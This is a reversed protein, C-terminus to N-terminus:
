FSFSGGIGPNVHNPLIADPAGYIPKLNLTLKFSGGSFFEYAAEHNQLTFAPESQVGPRALIKESAVPALSKENAILQYTQAPEPNKAQPDGWLDAYGAFPSPTEIEPELIRSLEPKPAALHNEIHHKMTAARHKEEFLVGAVLLIVGILLALYKKMTVLEAGNKWNAFVGVAHTSGYHLGAM